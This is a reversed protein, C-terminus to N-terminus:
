NRLCQKRQFASKVLLKMLSEIRIKGESTTHRERIKTIVVNHFQELQLSNNYSPLETRYLGFTALTLLNPVSETGISLKLLRM